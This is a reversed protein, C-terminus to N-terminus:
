SLLEFKPPAGSPICVYSWTLAAKDLVRGNSDQSQSWVTVHDILCWMTVHHVTSKKGYTVTQHCHEGGASDRTWSYHSHAQLKERWRIVESETGVREGVLALVDNELELWIGDNLRWHGLQALALRQEAAGGGKARCLSSTATASQILDSRANENENGAEEKARAATGTVAQMTRCSPGPAVKVM